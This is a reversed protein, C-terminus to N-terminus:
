RFFLAFARKEKQQSSERKSKEMETKQNVLVAGNSLYIKGDDKLEGTFYPEQMMRLMHGEVTARAPSVPLFSNTVKASSGRNEIIVCGMKPSLWIGSFPGNSSTLNGVNNIDNTSVSSQGMMAKNRPDAYSLASGTCNNLNDRWGAAPSPEYETLVAESGRRYGCWFPAAPIFDKYPYVRLRPGTSERSVDRFIVTPQQQWMAQCANALINFTNDQGEPFYLDKVSFPGRGDVYAVCAGTNAWDIASWTSFISDTSVYFKCLKQDWNEVCPVGEEGVVPAECRLGLVTECLGPAPFTARFQTWYGPTPGQFLCISAALTFMDMFADHQIKRMIITICGSAGLVILMMSIKSCRMFRRSFSTPDHWRLKKMQSILNQRSRSIAAKFTIRDLELIFTLALANLILEINTPTWML